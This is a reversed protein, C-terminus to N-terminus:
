LLSNWTNPTIKSTSNLKSIPNKLNAMSTSIAVLNSIIEAVICGKASVNMEQLSPFSLCWFTPLFQLPCVPLVCRVTVNSGCLFLHFFFIFLTSEECNWGEEWEEHCGSSGSFAGFNALRRRNDGRLSTDKIFSNAKKAPLIIASLPNEIPDDVEVSAFDIVNGKNTLTASGMLDDNVMSKSEIVRALTLLFTYQFLTYM